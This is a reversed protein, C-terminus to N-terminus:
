LLTAVANTKVELIVWNHLYHLRHMFQRCLAQPQSYPLLRFKGMKKWSNEMDCLCMGLHHKMAILGKPPNMKEQTVGKNSNHNVGPLCAACCWVAAWEREKPLIPFLIMFTSTLPSMPQSWSLKSPLLLLQAHFHLLGLLENAEEWWCAPRWGSWCLCSVM